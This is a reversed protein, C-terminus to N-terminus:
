DNHVSPLYFFYSHKPIISPFCTIICNRSIKVKGEKEKRKKEKRKKNSLIITTFYKQGFFFLFSLSVNKKQKERNISANLDIETDIRFYIVKKWVKWVFSILPFTFTMKRILFHSPLYSSTFYYYSMIYISNTQKHLLIHSTPSHVALM